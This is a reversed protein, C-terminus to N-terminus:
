PVRELLWQSNLSPWSGPGYQRVLTGNSYLSGSVTLAKGSHRAIIYHSSGGSNSIFWQQNALGEYDWQHIKAGDSMSAREVDLVRGSHRAEIKYYGGGVVVISWQQNALGEYTWIHVWAGNCCGNNSVDLVKHSGVNRIIYYATPDINLQASAPSVTLATTLLALGFFLRVLVTKASASLLSFLVSLAALRNAKM